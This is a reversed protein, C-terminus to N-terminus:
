YLSHIFQKTGTAAHLYVISKQSQQSSDGETSSEVPSGDVKGRRLHINREDRNRSMTESNPRRHPSMPPKLSLKSSSKNERNAESVNIM